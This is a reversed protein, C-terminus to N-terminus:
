TPFEKAPTQEILEPAAEPCGPLPVVITVDTGAERASRILTTGGVESVRARMGALGYGHAATAPEFGCGDDSIVARLLSDGYTVSLSVSATEGAHKRANSLAEQCSRLVVVELGAPLAQVSGTVHASADHRAALRQLAEVLSVEQLDAPAGGAVLSRAEALNHRATDAMLALHRRALSVDGELESEVAQVLMVISTFGQALTDHIERAIREREAMAGHETSLRAIEERRAELETILHARENSQEIIRIIWSGLAISFVLTVLAFVGNFFLEPAPPLWLLAWGAVPLLNIVTVAVIAPRLRLAIFCQPVLAFTMLRMEGVLVASTLLMVTAGAVYVVASRESRTRGSLVPRGLLVYWPVLLALMMMAVVGFPWRPGVTGLVFVLTASWVVAFYLDWFRFARHWADIDRAGAPGRLRRTPEEVPLDASM